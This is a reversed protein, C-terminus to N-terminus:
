NSIYKHIYCKEKRPAHLADLWTEEKVLLLTNSLYTYQKSYVEQKESNYYTIDKTKGSSTYYHEQVSFAENLKDFYVSMCSIRQKEENYAYTKVLIRQQGNFVEQQQILQTYEDYTNQYILVLTDKQNLYQLTPTDSQRRSIKLAWENGPPLTSPPVYNYQTEEIDSVQFDTRYTIKQERILRDSADYNSILIPYKSENYHIETKHVETKKRGTEISIRVSVTNYGQPDLQDIQFIEEFQNYYNIKIKNGLTDYVCEIKQSINGDTDFIKEEALQGEENFLKMRLLQTTDADDGKCKYINEQRISLYQRARSTQIDQVKDASFFGPIPEETTSCTITISCILLSLLHWHLKM